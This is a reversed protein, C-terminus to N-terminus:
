QREADGEGARRSEKGVRREESRPGARVTNGAQRERGRCRAPPSRCPSGVTRRIIRSGHSVLFPVLIVDNKWSTDPATNWPGPRDVFSLTRRPSSPIDVASYAMPVKAAAASAATSYMTTVPSETVVMSVDMMSSASDTSRHHTWVPYRGTSRNARGTKRGARRRSVPRCAVTGGIVPERRAAGCATSQGAIATRDRDFARDRHAREH